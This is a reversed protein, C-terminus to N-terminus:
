RKRASRGRSTGKRGTVAERVRSAGRALREGPRGRDHALQPERGSAAARNISKEAIRTLKQDAAKEEALNEELLSRCDLGLQKAWEVLTGYASIEYHEVRQAAAIFMADLVAADGDEKMLEAGEELIGVMGHCTKTKPALDLSEFCSELRDVQGRTEDLHHEFASRLEPNSAAKIMKPLAKTIQKEAHYVDKLENVFADTLQNVGAM